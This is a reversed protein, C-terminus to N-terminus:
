SSKIGFIRKVWAVKARRAAHSVAVDPLFMDFGHFGGAWVHLEVQVGSAWLKLAYAVTEDRLVEASGVDLYATPLRSLDDARAAPVIVEPSEQNKELSSKWLDHFTAYPLFDSTEAYQQSSVTTLRDDLAPCIFFQACIVPGQRDRRLLATSAALGGGASTGGVMLCKPDIGLEQMHDSTVKLRTYCDEVAVSFSHEPALRYEVTICIADCELIMDTAYELTHLRDGWHYGGGHMWYICPRPTSTKSVSSQLISLIIGHNSGDRSSIRVQSHSIGRAEQDDLYSSPTATAARMM